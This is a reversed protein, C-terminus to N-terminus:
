FKIKNKMKERKKDTLAVKNHGLHWYGCCPCKYAVIKHTMTEANQANYVKAKEYATKEDYRKKPRYHPQLNSDYYDLTYCKKDYTVTQEGKDM